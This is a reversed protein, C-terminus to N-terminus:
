NRSFGLQIMGLMCYTMSGCVAISTKDHVWVDEETRLWGLQWMNVAFNQLYQADISWLGYFGKSELM